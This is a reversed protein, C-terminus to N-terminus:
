RGGGLGGCQECSRVSENLIRDVRHVLDLVGGVARGEGHAVEKLVDAGCAVTEIASHLLLHLDGADAAGIELLLVELTCVAREESIELARRLVLAPLEKRRKHRGLM